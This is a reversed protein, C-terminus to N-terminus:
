KEKGKLFIFCCCCCCAKSCVGFVSMALYLSFLWPPPIRMYIIVPLWNTFGVHQFGAFDTILLPNISAFFLVYNYALAGM